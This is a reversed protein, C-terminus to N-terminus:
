LTDLQKKTLETILDCCVSQRGSVLSNVLPEKGSFMYHSLLGKWDYGEAVLQDEFFDM